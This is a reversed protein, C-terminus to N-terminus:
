RTILVWGSYMKYDKNIYLTYYYAGPPLDKGKMKGDWAKNNTSEFVTKGYRNVVVLHPNPFTAISPISWTDNVGDGNPTFANPIQINPFVQVLVEDSVENCGSKVHLTYSMDASPTAIPNLKTPDDLYTTPTWYYELIGDGKTSGNLTISQGNLVKKDPGANAVAPSIINVLISNTTSCSGNSITVTYNTSQNPTAIPNAINPDSLGEAPSWKYSSGGSAILQVPQNQCVTTETINTVGTLPPKIQIALPVSSQTCGNKNRVTVIYDGSNAQTANHIIPNKEFSEFNNPGTWHYENIVETGIDADLIIEGGLCSSGVNSVSLVEPLKNINIIYHESVVRCTLSNINGREAVLLRYVYRGIKENTFDIEINKSQAGPGTYNTWNIEEIGRTNVQWQYELNNGIIDASLSVKPITGFCYDKTISTSNNLKPVIVAGCPRLALDDIAFDNGDGNAGKSIIKVILETYNASNFSIGKKVWTPEPTKAINGTTYTQIVTGNPTEVIFELNPDPGAVMLLNMMWFSFEYTTNPCFSNLPVQMITHDTEDGNFLLMYGTATDETHDEIQFWRTEKEKGNGDEDNYMGFNNKAVTYQRQDPTGAFYQFATGYSSLQASSFQATGTGFTNTFLPQGLAGNCLQAKVESISFFVM